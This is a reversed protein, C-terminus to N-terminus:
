IKYRQWKSQGWITGIAISDTFEELQEHSLLIVGAVQALQKASATFTNNSIVVAMDASEFVKGAIVEQVAANGVPSSYFKCQFAVRKGHHMGIIDVGQDGSGGRHVISWGLRSLISACLMEYEGGSSCEEAANESLRIYEDSSKVLNTLLISLQDLQNMGQSFAFDMVVKYYDNQIDDFTVRAQEYALRAATSTHGKLVQIKRILDIHLNDIRELTEFADELVYEDVVTSFFYKLEKYWRDENEIGYDDITVLQQHKRVLTSIHSEVMGMM